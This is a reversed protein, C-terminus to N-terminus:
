AAARRRAEVYARIARYQSLGDLGAEALVTEGPGSGLFHGKAYPHLSAARGAASLVWRDMTPLTFGTIGMAERGRDEPFIRQQEAPPLLDFLEASSVYYIWPAIGDRDLLPLCETVFAYTVASEQLVITGDGTRGPRRLLYVGAAADEAPALGFARRDLVTENPRTVFPAILAPRQRLAAMLLPWVEQPEWPTLTIAVGRPFNGQLLQLAQPDAHTPGDEGTKLGAHACVLIMTRYPEGDAARRAQQGIGHLRSAVHGLPAIFAGYSSGVGIHAGFTSIGSLVGAIADECIGGISLLRSAPDTAANWYGEGVGGGGTGVSTSSLLDAAAIFLAGGSAGNLYRLTRGLEGRLTTVTGPALLLEAPIRRAQAAAAYVAEVRPRDERPSRRRHDLRERSVLLRRAMEAATDRDGELRLRVLRLAEWFCQELVDRGDEPSACRREPGECSPLEREAGATFPAMAEYFGASCLKHGAGHSARGEVGYRWGKVTRYVVATPQGTSMRLAARQAALVQAFDMGDPVFVVNWDHLQFLECPDWQVYDGPVDGDRCVHESDISAQNWDVHVVLNDLRATGAAALAEAVRGPTLGGEGELVHVRPADQGFWDRLALAYGISSALGVGSAGTALRVFPTAPTPHGDLAKARVRRFLTTPTIPNRRFGLLDELRLRADLDPLLEPAALRAAEDRLAWMAYLGMAKHGAAYVLVDADERAPRSLDYDMAGFLLGAVIRGSSISGGPHGSMPVYNYLIACLSRYLLDLEEFGRREEGALALPAPATTMTTGITEGRRNGLMFAMADEEAAGPRM